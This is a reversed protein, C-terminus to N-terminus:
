REIRVGFEELQKIQKEAKEGLPNNKIYLRLYPAFRREGDVDAKAMEVLPQLDELKNDSLLLLRVEKLPKLFSLDKIANNQLDLTSLWPLEGVPAYDEIQNGGLYLSTLKPMNKLVSIEKVANGTLYLARMNTAAALPSIDSVKNNELQLYQLRQLKALPALSEVKNGALDISQLKSLEAIPTLDNIENGALEILALSACHQLGELSKIGAKNGVVQSINKVDEATIPEDNHRKDFVEKRVAAELAKDPFISDAAHLSATWSLFVCAVAAFSRATLMAPPVAPRLAPLPIKIQEDYNGPRLRAVM